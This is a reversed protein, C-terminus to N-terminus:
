TEDSSKTKSDKWDIGMQSWMDHTLKDSDPERILLCACTGTKGWLTKHVDPYIDDGVWYHDPFISRLQAGTFTQGDFMNCYHCTKGEPAHHTRAYYTWLTNASYPSTTKMYDPIRKRAEIVAAVAVAAEM